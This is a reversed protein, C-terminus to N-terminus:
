TSSVESNPPDITASEATLKIPPDSTSLEDNEDTLLGGDSSSDNMTTKGNRKGPRRINPRRPRDKVSFFLFRVFGNRDCAVLKSLFSTGLHALRVTSDVNIDLNQEQTPAVAIRKKAPLAPPTIRQEEEEKQQEQEVLDLLDHEILDAEDDPSIEKKKTRMVVPVNSYITPGGNTTTEQDPTTAILSKRWIVPTLKPSSPSATRAPTSFLNRSEKENSSRVASPALKPSRDLLYIHLLSILSM